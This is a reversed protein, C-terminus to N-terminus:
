IILFFGNETSADHVKTALYILRLGELGFIEPEFGTTPVMKVDEGNIFLREFDNNELVFIIHCKNTTMFCKRLNQFNKYRKLFENKFDSVQIWYWRGYAVFVSECRNLFEQVIDIQFLILCLVM